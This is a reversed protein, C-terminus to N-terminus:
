IKPIKFLTRYRKVIHHLCLVSAVISFEVHWFVLDYSRITKSDLFM